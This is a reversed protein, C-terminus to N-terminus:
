ILLISREWKEFGWSATKLEIILRQPKSFLVCNARFFIKMDTKRDSRASDEAIMM